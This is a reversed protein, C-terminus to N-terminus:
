GFSNFDFDQLSILLDMNMAANNVVALIYFCDLYGDTSLHISLYFTTYSCLPISNLRLSSPFGAIHSLM